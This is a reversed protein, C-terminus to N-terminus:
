KEKTKDTEDLSTKKDGTILFNHVKIGAKAMFKRLWMCWKGKEDTFSIIQITNKKM